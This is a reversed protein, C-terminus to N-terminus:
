GCSLPSETIASIAQLFCDQPGPKHQMPNTNRMWWSHIHGVCTDLAILGVPCLAFGSEDTVAPLLGRCYNDDRQNIARAMRAGYVKWVHGERGVNSCMCSCLVTLRMSRQLCRQLCAM